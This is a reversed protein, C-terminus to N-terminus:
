IELKRFNKEAKKYYILAGKLDWDIESLDGLCYYAIGKWKKNNLSKAEKLINKICRKADEFLFLRNYIVYPIYDLVFENPEKIKDNSIIWLLPDKSFPPM